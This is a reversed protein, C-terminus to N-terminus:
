ILPNPDGSHEPFLALRNPGICRQFLLAMLAQPLQGPIKNNIAGIKRRMETAVHQFDRYTFPVGMKDRYIQSVQLRELFEKSLEDLFGKPLENQKSSAKFFREVYQKTTLM